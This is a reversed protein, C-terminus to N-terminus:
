YCCVSAWLCARCCLCPRRSSSARRSPFRFTVVGGGAV